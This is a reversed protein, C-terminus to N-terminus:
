AAQHRRNASGLIAGGLTHIPEIAAIKKILVAKGAYHQASYQAAADLDDFLSVVARGVILVYRGEAHQLLENIKERYFLLEEIPIGEGRITTSEITRWDLVGEPHVMPPRQEIPRFMVPVESGKSLESGPDPEGGECILPSHKETAILGM